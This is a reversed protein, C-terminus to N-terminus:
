LRFLTDISMVRYEFLKVVVGRVMSLYKIMLGEESPSM